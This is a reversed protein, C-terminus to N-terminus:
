RTQSEGFITEYAFMTAAIGIPITFLLGICCACAGALNLLGVVVTFGLLLWWHRHVKKWSVMMAPWFKMGKDIILPLTFQWNVSLYTVPIMCIAFIPLTGFIASWFEPLISQVNAPSANRMQEIIPEVKTAWEFNFPMLCLGVFFGVVFNGLFLQAFAKQFGIFINGVDAPRGRVRQIFIYFIGGFFPAIVLAVGAQVAVNFIQRWVPSALIMKPVLMVLITNIIFFGIGALLMAVICAGLFTGMNEKFLTWGRSMCDGIDLEYDGEAIGAPSFVPLTGPEQPLSVFADAVEPFTSLPRFGAEGEAKALSQANLRGEAIWRRLDDATVSGYEKGDGGIISYIAM